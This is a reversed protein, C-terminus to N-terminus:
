CGTAECSGDTLIDSEEPRLRQHHFFISTALWMTEEFLEGVTLIRTITLVGVDHVVYTYVHLSWQKVPMMVINM